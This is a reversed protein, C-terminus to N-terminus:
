RDFLCARERELVTLHFLCSSCGGNWDLKEFDVKLRGFPWLASCLANDSSCRRHTHVQLSEEPNISKRLNQVARKGGRTTADQTDQTHHLPGCISVNQLKAMADASPPQSNAIRAKKITEVQVNRSM